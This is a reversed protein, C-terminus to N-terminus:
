RKGPKTTRPSAEDFRDDDALIAALVGLDGARAFDDVRLSMARQILVEAEALDRRLHALSAENHLVSALDDGADGQELIQHARAYADAAGEVDGRYRHWMGLSNWASATDPDDEGLTARAQALADLLVEGASTLDGSGVLADAIDLRAQVAMRAVDPEISLGSASEIAASAHAMAGSYDGEAACVRGANLRLQVEEFAGLQGCQSRAEARALAARAGVLDRSSLAASIEEHL